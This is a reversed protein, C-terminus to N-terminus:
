NTRPLEKLQDAITQHARRKLRLRITGKTTELRVSFFDGDVIVIPDPTTVEYEVAQNMTAGM